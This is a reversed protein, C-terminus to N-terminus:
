GVSMLSANGGAAATNIATSVEAVLGVPEYLDGKALGDPTRAQISARPRLMAVRRQRPAGAWSTNRMQRSCIPASVPKPM